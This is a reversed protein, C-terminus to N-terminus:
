LGKGTCVWVKDWSWPSKPSSIPTHSITHIEWQHNPLVRTHEPMLPWRQCSNVDCSRNNVEKYPFSPWCSSVICRSRQQHLKTAKQKFKSRNNPLFPVSPANSPCLIAQVDELHVLLHSIWRSGHMNSALNIWHTNDVHSATTSRRKQPNTM